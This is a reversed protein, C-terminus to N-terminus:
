PLVCSLLSALFHGNPQKGPLGQPQLFESHSLCWQVFGLWWQQLEHADWCEMSLGLCVWLSLQIIHPSASCGLIFSAWFQILDMKSGSAVLHSSYTRCRLFSLNLTNIHANNEWSKLTHPLFVWTIEFQLIWMCIKLIGSSHFCNKVSLHSLTKRYFEWNLIM